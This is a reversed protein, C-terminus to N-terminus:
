QRWGSVEVLPLNEFRQVPGDTQIEHVRATAAHQKIFHGVQLGWILSYIEDSWGYEPHPAPPSAPPLTNPEPLQVGGVFWVRGGGRLTAAILELTPGMPENLNLYQRVTDYCNHMEGWEIPPITTWPTSGRYYHQFVMGCYFPRVLILDRPTSETRLKAAILDVNSRRVHARTWMTSVSGAIVLLAVALRALRMAPRTGLPAFGFELATAVLCMFGMYYWEQTPYGVHLIFVVVIGLAFAAALFSYSVARVAEKEFGARGERKWHWVALVGLAVFLVIWLGVFAMGASGFAEAMREGVWAVGFSQRIMINWQQVYRIAGLHFLLSLAALFGPLLLLAALRWQRRLGAIAVASLSVALLLPANQYSAQANLIAIVSALMFMRLSPRELLRWLAGFFLVALIAALGYARVSHGWYFITPNFYILAVALVPLTRAPCRTSWWLAPALGAASLYGLSQIWTDSTDGLAMWLRLCINFFPPFSDERTLGLMWSWTPRQAPWVSGVEDRWLGGVHHLLVTFLWFFLLVAVAIVAGDVKHLTALKPLPNRRAPQPGSDSTM